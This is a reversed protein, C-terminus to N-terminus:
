LGPQEVDRMHALDPEGPGVRDRGELRQHGAIQLRQRRHSHAVRQEEVLRAADEVIQHRRPEAVPEKEDDVGRALLGVERM